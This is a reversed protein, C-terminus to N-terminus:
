CSREAGERSRGGQARAASVSAALRQSPSIRSAGTASAPANSSQALRGRDRALDRRLPQPLQIIRLPAEDGGVLQVAGPALMQAHEMACLGAVGGPARFLAFGAVGDKLVVHGVPLLRVARLPLLALELM